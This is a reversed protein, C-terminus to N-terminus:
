NICVMKVILPKQKHHANFGDLYETIKFNNKLYLKLAPQNDALCHLVLSKQKKAQKITEILKSGIGKGIEDKDVCINSIYVVDPTTIHETLPLVYNNITYEFHKNVAKLEKYDYSLNTTQEIIIGIGVIEKDVTAVLINKYYFVSGKKKILNILVDKWNSYKYFWYPYIYPDTQYILEAVKTLNDNLKLHRIKMKWWYDNKLIKDFGKTKSLEHNEFIIELNNKKKYEAWQAYLKYIGRYYMRCPIIEHNQIQKNNVILFFRYSLVDDIKEISLIKNNVLAALSELWQLYGVIDKYYKDMDIVYKKDKRCNELENLIEQLNYIDYFQVSYDVIFSAENIEKDKKFQIFLAVAGIIATIITVINSVRSGIVDDLFLSGILAACLLVVSIITISKNKKM